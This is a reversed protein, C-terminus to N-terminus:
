YFDIFEDRVDKEVIESLQQACLLRIAKLGDTNVSSGKILSAMDDTVPLENIRTMKHQQSNNMVNMTMKRRLDRAAERDPNLIKRTLPM